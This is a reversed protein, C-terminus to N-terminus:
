PAAQKYYLKAEHTEAKRLSIIRLIEEEDTSLDVFTLHVIQGDLYGLANLRQEGYAERDDEVVLTFYDFVADAGAFDLGHREINSQRKFEDWIVM